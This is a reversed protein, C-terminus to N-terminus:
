PVGALVSYGYYAGKLANDVQKYTVISSDKVRAEREKHLLIRHYSTGVAKPEHLAVIRIVSVIYDEPMDDAATEAVFCPVDELRVQELWVRSVRTKEIVGSTDWASSMM